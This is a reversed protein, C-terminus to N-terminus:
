KNRFIIKVKGFLHRLEVWLSNHFCGDAFKDFGIVLMNEEGERLSKKFGWALTDLFDHASRVDDFIVEASKSKEELEKIRSNAAELKKNLISIEINRCNVENELRHAATFLDTLM